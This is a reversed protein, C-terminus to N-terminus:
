GGLMVVLSGVYDSTPAIVTRGAPRLGVAAAEGELTDADLRDLHILDLEAELTGDAAVTERRRELVFGDGDARVATPRSCYVIGDAEVVDPLPAPGGEIVEFLDLEGAIAIAILGDERVHERACRLFSMRGAAGGLLQITQMPVICLGFQQPLSFARADAVVTTVGLAGARARLGALLETDLDLATVAHGARALDLATRGTGAGVDLVPGSVRGALDRWLPLDEAYSGCELDHWVVSV